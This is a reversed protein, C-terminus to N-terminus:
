VYETYANLIQLKVHPDIHWAPPQLLHMKTHMCTSKVLSRHATNNWSDTARIVWTSIEQLYLILLMPLSSHTFHFYSIKLFMSFHWCNFPLASPPFKQPIIRKSNKYATSPSTRKYLEEMIHTQTRQAAHHSNLWDIENLNRIQMTSGRAVVSEESNKLRQKM